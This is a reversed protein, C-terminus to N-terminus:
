KNLKNLENLGSLHPIGYELRCKYPEYLLSLVPTGPGCPSNTTQCERYPGQGQLPPTEFGGATKDGTACADGGTSHPCRRRAQGRLDEWERSPLPNPHPHRVVFKVCGEQSVLTNDHWVYCGGLGDFGDAM